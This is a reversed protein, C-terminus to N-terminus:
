DEYKRKWQRIIVDKESKDLRVSTGNDFKLELGVDDIDKFVLTIDCTTEISILCKFLSFCVSECILL